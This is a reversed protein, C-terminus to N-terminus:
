PITKLRRTFSSLNSLHDLPFDEFNHCLKSKVFASGFILQAILYVLLYLLVLHGTYKTYM